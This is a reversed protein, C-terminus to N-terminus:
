QEALNMLLKIGELTKACIAPINDDWYLNVREVDCSGSRSICPHAVLDINNVAATAPMSTDFSHINGRRLNFIEFVNDLGLAHVYECPGFKMWEAIVNRDFGARYVSVPISWADIQPYLCERMFKMGNIDGQLVAMLKWIGGKELEGESGIMNLQRSLVKATLYGNGIVEDGVIFMSKTTCMNAIELLDEFKWVKGTEYIGNDLVITDWKHSTYYESYDENEWLSPLIFASQPRVVDLEWVMGCPVIPMYNLKSM